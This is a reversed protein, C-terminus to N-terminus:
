EQGTKKRADISGFAILRFRDERCFNSIFENVEETFGMIDPSVYNILGAREVAQDDMHKLFERPSEMVREIIDLDKRSRRMRELIEPKMMGWPQVHVHADIFTEM